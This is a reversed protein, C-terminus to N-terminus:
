RPVETKPAEFCQYRFAEEPIPSYAAVEMRGLKEPFRANVRRIAAEVGAREFSSFLHDQRLRPRTLHSARLELKGVECGNHLEDFLGMAVIRLTRLDQSAETMLRGLQLSQGGHNLRLALGWALRNDAKLRESLREVARLVYPVILYPEVLGDDFEEGIVVDQALRHVPVERSLQNRALNWILAGQVKGFQSELQLRTFRQLEVLHHLGLLKLRELCWSEVGLFRLYGVPTNVLFSASQAVTNLRGPKSALAALQATGHSDAEGAYVDLEWVLAAVEDPSAGRLFLLGPKVPELYPTCDYVREVAQAWAISELTMDRQAVIAYPCLAKARGLREGPLVGHQRAARDAGVVRDGDVVLLARELDSHVQLRRVAWSPVDGAWLCTVRRAPAKEKPKSKPQRAVTSQLAFGKPIPKLWALWFARRV